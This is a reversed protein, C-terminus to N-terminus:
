FSFFGSSHEVSHIGLYFGIIDHQKYFNALFAALPLNFTFFISQVYVVDSQDCLFFSVNFLQGLLRLINAQNEFWHEGM